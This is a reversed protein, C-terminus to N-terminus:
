CTKLSMLDAVVETNDMKKKNMPVRSLQDSAVVILPLKGESVLKSVSEFLDMAYAHVPTRNPSTQRCTPAEWDVATYLEKLANLLEHEDFNNEIVDPKPIKNHYMHVSGLVVNSLIGM